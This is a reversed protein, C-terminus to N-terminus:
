FQLYSTDVSTDRLFYSSNFYFYVKKKKTSFLRSCEQVAHMWNLPVAATDSSRSTSKEGLSNIQIKMDNPNCIVTEAQLHNALACM